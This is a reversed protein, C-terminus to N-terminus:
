VVSSLLPDRCLYAGDVEVLVWACVYMCVYMCVHMCAHVARDAGAQM